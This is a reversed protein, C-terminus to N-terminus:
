MKMNRWTATSAESTAIVPNQPKENTLFAEKKVNERIYDALEGYSVDGKTEQLKKLLLNLIAWIM